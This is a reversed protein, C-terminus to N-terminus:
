LRWGWFELFSEFPWLSSAARNWPKLSTYFITGTETPDGLVKDQGIYPDLAWWSMLLLEMPKFAYKVYGQRAGSEHFFSVSEENGLSIAHLSELPLATVPHRVFRELQEEPLLRIDTVRHTGNRLYLAIRKAAHDDPLALRAPLSEGFANQRERPWGKPIADEPLASTPVFALFCGCTHVTTILVPKGSEDATIIIFMGGNRGATLHFPVLSYPVREFHIRYATNHYTKGSKSVFTTQDVYVTPRDPNVYLDINGSDLRKAEVRGIRNFSQDSNEVLM